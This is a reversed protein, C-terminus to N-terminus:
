PKRAVVCCNSPHLPDPDAVLHTQTFGSAALLAEVEATTYARCEPTGVPALADQPNWKERPLLTLIM